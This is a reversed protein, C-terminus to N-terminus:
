EVPPTTERMSRIVGDLGLKRVSAGYVKRYNTVMNVGAIVLNYIKWQGDEAQVMSYDVQIPSAGFSMESKVKAFHVGGRERAETSQFIVTGNNDYDFLATAYTRILLKRFEEAFEARQMESATRWNKALVLKSIKAFDFYPYIVQDVIDFLAARDDILEEKHLNFTKLLDDIAAQISQEPTPSAQSPLSIMLGM